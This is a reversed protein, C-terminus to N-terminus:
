KHDILLHYGSPVNFLSDHRAETKLSKVETIFSFMPEGEAEKMADDTKKKVFMGSLGSVLGGMSTPVSTKGNSEEKSKSEKSACANGEMNWTLRTYIPYGKIKGMQKAFDLFAARASPSLSHNIYAAIMKAAEAPMVSGDAGSGFYAKNYSDQINLTDRMPQTISTTWVDFNLTSTSTRATKDRLTVIWAAQYQETDFGNITKKEGTAKVTFNSKAINMTCGSEHQAEPPAETNKAPAVPPLPCGKLPCETYETKEPNLSWLLNRDIRWIKTSSKSGILYSSYTGTGKFDSEERHMDARFFDRETVESPFFGKIGNNVLLREITATPHQPTSDVIEVPKTACASVTIAITTCCLLNRLM